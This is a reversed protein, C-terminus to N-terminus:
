AAFLRDAVEAAQDPDLRHFARLWWGGAPSIGLKKAHFPRPLGARLCHSLDNFKAGRGTVAREVYAERRRPDAHESNGNVRVFYVHM